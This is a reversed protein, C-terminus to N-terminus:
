DCLGYRGIPLWSMSNGCVRYPLLPQQILGQPLAAALWVTLYLVLEWSLLM